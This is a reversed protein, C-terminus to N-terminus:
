AHQLPGLVDGGVFGVYYSSDAQTPIGRGALYVLKARKLNSVPHLATEIRQTPSHTM